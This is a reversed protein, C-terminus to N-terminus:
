GVAVLRVADAAKGVRDKAVDDRAEGDLISGAGGHEGGAPAMDPGGGREDKVVAGASEGEGGGGRREGGVRAGDEGRAEGGRLVGLDDGGDEGGESGPVDLVEDNHDIAEPGDLPANGGVDEAARGEAAEPDAEALKRVCGAGNRGEQAQLLEANYVGGHLIAIEM